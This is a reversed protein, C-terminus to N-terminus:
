SYFNIRLATASTYGITPYVIIYKANTGNEIFEEVAMNSFIYNTINLVINANNYIVRGHWYTYNPAPHSASLHVMCNSFLSADIFFGYWTILSGSKVKSGYAINTGNSYYNAGYTTISRTINIGTNFVEIVRNGDTNFLHGGGTTSSYEIRGNFGVRQYSSILINTNNTDNTDKTGILTYDNNGNSIRLRGGDGVQLINTPNTTAIGVNGDPYKIIFRPTNASGANVNLIISGGACEWFANNPYNAGPMTSGGVGFFTQISGNNKIQICNNAGSATSTIYLPNDISSTVSSIRDSFYSTGNTYLKYTGIDTTGIGVQTTRLAQSFEAYTNNITLIINNGGFFGLRVSQTTNQHYINLPATNASSLFLGTKDIRLGSNDLAGFYGYTNVFLSGADDIRVRENNGNTFFKIVGTGFTTTSISGTNGANPFQAIGIDKNALTQYISNGGDNANIRFGGLNTYGDVQLAYNGDWVPNSQTIQVLPQSYGTSSGIITLKTNASTGATTGIGVSGSSTIVMRQNTGTFFRHEKTSSTGYWMSTSDTGIANPTESATGETLILKTGTSGFVGNAPVGISTDNIVVKGNIDLEVRPTRNIGLFGSLTGGILKLYKSNAITETLYTQIVSFFSPNFNIGSFYPDPPTNSSM